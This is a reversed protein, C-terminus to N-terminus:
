NGLVGLVRDHINQEDPPVKLADAPLCNIDKTNTSVWKSLNSGGQRLASRLDNIVANAEEITDVSFFRNVWTFFEM